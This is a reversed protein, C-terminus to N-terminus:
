AASRRLASRMDVVTGETPREGAELALVRMLLKANELRLETLDAAHKERIRREAEAIAQGIPEALDGMLKNCGKRIRADAWADWRKQTAEDM